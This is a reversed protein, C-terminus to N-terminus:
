VELHYSALRGDDVMKQSIVADMYVATNNCGLDERRSNDVIDKRGM